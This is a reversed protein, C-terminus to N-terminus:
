RAHATTGLRILKWGLVLVVFVVASIGGIEYLPQWSQDPRASAM